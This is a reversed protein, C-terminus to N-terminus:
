AGLRARVGFLGDSRDDALGFIGDSELGRGIAEAEKSPLPIKVVTEREFIPESVEVLEDEFDTLHHCSWFRALEEISDTNPIRSTSMPEETAFEEPTIGHRNVPLTSRISRAGGNM